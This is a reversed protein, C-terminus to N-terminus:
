SALGLDSQSAHAPPPPVLVDETMRRDNWKAHQV